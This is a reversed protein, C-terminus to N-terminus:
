EQLNVTFNFKGSDNPNVSSSNDDPFRDAHVQLYKLAHQAGGRDSMGIFLKEMSERKGASVGRKYAVNFYALEVRNLTDIIGFYDLVEQKSLGKALYVVTDLRDKDFNVVVKPLWSFDLNNRFKRNAEKREAFTESHEPDFDAAEDFDVLNKAPEIDLTKDPVAEM